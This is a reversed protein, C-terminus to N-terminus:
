QVIIKGKMMTHISCHYDFTGLTNFTHSYTQGSALKTSALENGSDSTVTHPASDQNTWTVTDGQKITLSAPNFAFNSISVTNSATAPQNNTPPVQNTAANASSDAPNNTQQNSSPATYSSFYWFLGGILVLIVLIGIVIKKNM